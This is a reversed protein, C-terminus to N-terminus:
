LVECIQIQPQADTFNPIDAMMENGLAMCKQMDEMSKFYLHGVAVFPAPAGPQGGAIGKDVETRVQAVPDLMKHVMAMHKNIYYNMDFKRGPGNPYMVLIHIM